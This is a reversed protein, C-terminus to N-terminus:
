KIRVMVVGHSPVTATFEGSQKGLDAHKWLDRVTRSGSIGLDSWKATVSATDGGRNFLAVAQSGDSLPKAWIEKDGDKAVRKGQKGLKDQDV